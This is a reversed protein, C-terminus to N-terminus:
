GGKRANGGKVEAGEGAVPSLRDTSKSDRCKRSWSSFEMVRCGHACIASTNDNLPM